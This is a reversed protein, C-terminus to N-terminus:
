PRKHNSPVIANPAVPYGKPEFALVMLLMEAMEQQSHIKAQFNAVPLPQHSIVLDESKTYVCTFSQGNVVQEERWLIEEKKISETAESFYPGMHFEIAPGNEKRIKGSPGNDYGAGAQLKYGPLLRLPFRIGASTNPASAERATAACGMSVILTAILTSILRRM